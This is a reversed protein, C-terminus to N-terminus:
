WDRGSIFAYFRELAYFFACVLTTAGTVILITTM